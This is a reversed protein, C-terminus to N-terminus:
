VAQLIIGALDHGGLVAVAHDMDGPAGLLAALHGVDGMAGRALRRRARRFLSRLRQVRGADADLLLAVLELEPDAPLALREMGFARRHRELGDSGKIDPDPEGRM